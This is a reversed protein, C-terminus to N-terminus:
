RRWVHCALDAMWRQRADVQVSTWETAELVLDNIKLNEDRYAAKKDAFPRDGLSSNRQNRLITLNGLRTHTLHHKMLEEESLRWRGCHKPMIHELTVALDVQKVNGKTLFNEMSALMYRAVSDKMGARRVFQEKFEEDEPTLARVSEIAARLGTAGTRYLEAAVERIDAEIAKNDKGMVASRRFYLVQVARILRLLETPELGVLMGALVIPYSRDADLARFWKLAERLQDHKEVAPREIREYSRAALDLDEIMKEADMNRYRDNLTRVIRKLPVESYHLLLYHRLFRAFKSEAVRGTLEEWRHELKGLEDGCLKDDHGRSLISNKVLDRESLDLGRNNLGEFVSFADDWQRVAIEIFLSRDMLARALDRLCRQAQPRLTADPAEPSRIVYQEISDYDPRTDVGLESLVYQAIRKRLRAYARQMRVSSTRQEDTLGKFLEHLETSNTSQVLAASLYEQNGRNAYLRPRARESMADLATHNRLAGAHEHDGMEFAHHRVATLSLLATTLRQQGDIVYLVSDIGDYKPGPADKSVVITGYFHEVDNKASSLFDSAFDDIQDEEWAYDRQYLPIRYQLGIEGMLRRISQIRPDEILDAM